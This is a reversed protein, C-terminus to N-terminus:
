KPPEVLRAALETAHAVRIGALVSMRLGDILPALDAPIKQDSLASSLRQCLKDCEFLHERILHIEEQMPYVGKEELTVGAQRRLAILALSGSSKGLGNRWNPRWLVASHTRLAEAAAELLREWSELLGSGHSV